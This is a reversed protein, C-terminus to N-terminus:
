AREQAASRDRENKTVVLPPFCVFANLEGYALNMLLDIGLTPWRTNYPPVRQALPFNLFRPRVPLCKQKLAQAGKPTLTYCPVGFAWVLRFARSVIRQAQFAAVNMRLRDQEFQALCTSVGPLMEFCFFADFNWGWLVLDWSAPLTGILDAACSVYHSNFIADDEAITLARGQEITVDWLRAHSVATGLSSLSYTNLVDASAVGERVLATIDLKGGDLAGFREVDSLHHNGSCFEAWRYASRDPNIVHVRV